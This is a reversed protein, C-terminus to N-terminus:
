DIREDRGEDVALQWVGITERDGRVQAVTWRTM